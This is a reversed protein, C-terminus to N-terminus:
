NMPSIFPKLRVLPLRRVTCNSQSNIYMKKHNLQFNIQQHPKENSQVENALSSIDSKGTYVNKLTSGDQSNFTCNEVQLMDVMNKKVLKDREREKTREVRSAFASFFAVRQM